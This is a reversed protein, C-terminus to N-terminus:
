KLSNFGKEPQAPPCLDGLAAMNAEARHLVQKIDDFLERINKFHNAMVVLNSKAFDYALAGILSQSYHCHNKILALQNLLRLHTIPMEKLAAITQIRLRHQTHALQVLSDPIKSTLLLSNLHQFKKINALGNLKTPTSTSLEAKLAELVEEQQFFNTKLADWQTSFNVDPTDFLSFSALLLFPQDSSFTQPAPPTMAASSAENAVEEKKSEIKSAAAKQKKTELDKSSSTVEMKSNKKEVKDKLSRLFAM